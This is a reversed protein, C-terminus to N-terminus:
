QRASSGGDIVLVSGNCYSAEDSALFLCGNAMEEPSGPRAMPTIATASEPSDFLSLVSEVMPTAIFGPAICNTRINNGAYAVAMARTLNIVGAKAACYAHASPLGLFGSISAVAVISGGNQEIMHPLVAHAAHYFGDLNIGIVERWKEPSVNAVDAMSGPSKEEWSYGVGAAHVLIDIRGLDAIVRAVFANTAEHGILDVIGIHAAGGTARVLEATEELTSASRGIGIVTAGEQAFRIMASRGVGSGAGTVLATKGALRGM